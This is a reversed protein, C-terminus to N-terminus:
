RTAGSGAVHDVTANCKHINVPDNMRIVGKFYEQDNHPCPRKDQNVGKCYEQDNGPTLNTINFLYWPLIQSTSCAGPNNRPQIQRPVPVLITSPSSKHRPVLVLITRLCSKHRPVPVMPRQLPWPRALPLALSTAPALSTAAAPGPATALCRRQAFQPLDRTRFM